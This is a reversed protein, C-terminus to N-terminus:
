GSRLRENQEDGRRHYRATTPDEDRDGDHHQGQSGEADAAAPPAALGPRDTNRVTFLPAKAM